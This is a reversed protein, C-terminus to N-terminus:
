PYAPAPEPVAPRLAQRNQFLVVAGVVVLFVAFARRLGVASMKPGLWLGLLTGALAFGTFVLLFGWPISVAGRYGIFGACTNMAIVLLSTGVARRMPIRLLVVLAPVILFGGGIGMLGTLLGVGLAAGVM